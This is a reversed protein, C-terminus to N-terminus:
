LLQKVTYAASRRCTTHPIREHKLPATWLHNGSAVAPAVNQQILLAAGAPDNDALKRDITVILTDNIGSGGGGVAAVTATFASHAILWPLVVGWLM